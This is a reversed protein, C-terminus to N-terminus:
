KEYALILLANIIASAVPSGGKRGEVRIQSVNTKALIKKSEVVSVFGVPVGIILSPKITLDAIKQCLALLATPANGIVYIAEPYQEFCKLIGTETRTKGPLADSVQEIASILPNNFTKNVLTTIGQKVMTVDTVIPIQSGLGDMGNKIADPSFRLLNAFEFDATAHIVRRAIAYELSNLNHDGMEQDIIEFSKKLIPHNLSSSYPNM